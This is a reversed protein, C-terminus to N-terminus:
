VTRLQRYWVNMSELRGAINSNRVMKGGYEFGHYVNVLNMGFSLSRSYSFLSWLGRREMQQILYSFQTSLLGQNRHEPHTACDSMEASQFPALVDASCASVISGEYEMITFYVEEKMVKRIFEPDHMPTPYTQFVARYLRAMEEADNEGPHRMTYGKPFFSRNKEAPLDFANKLVNDEQLRDVHYARQPNLFWSYIFADIGRFFGKIEGEHIFPAKKFRHRERNKVYFILKDCNQEVALDYLSALYANWQPFPPLKYVKIRHSFSEIVIDEKLHTSWRQTLINM